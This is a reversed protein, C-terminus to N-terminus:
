RTVLPQTRETSWSILGAVTSAAAVVGFAATLTLLEVRAHFGLVAWNLAAIALRALILAPIVPIAARLLGHALDIQGAETRTLGIARVTRFVPRV